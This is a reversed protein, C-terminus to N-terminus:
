YVIEVLREEVSGDFRTIRMMKQAERASQSFDRMYKRTQPKTPFERAGVIYVVKKSIIRSKKM